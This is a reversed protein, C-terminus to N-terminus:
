PATLFERLIADVVAPLGPSHRVAALAANATPNSM